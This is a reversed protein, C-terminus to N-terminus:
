YQAESKCMMILVTIKDLGETKTTNDIPIEISGFLSFSENQESLQDKSGDFM